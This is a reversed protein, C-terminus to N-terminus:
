PSIPDILPLTIQPPTQIQVGGYSAYLLYSGDSLGSISYSGDSGTYVNHSPSGNDVWVDAGPIPIGNSDYVYGSITGPSQGLSVATSVAFICCLAMICMVVQIVLSSRRTLKMRHGWSLNYVVEYITIIIKIAQVSYATKRSICPLLATAQLWYRKLMFLAYRYVSRLKHM